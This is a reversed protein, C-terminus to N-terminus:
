DIQIEELANTTIGYQKFESIMSKIESIIGLSKNIRIVKLHDAVKAVAKRIILIKGTDDITENLEVCLEEFIRYALRGFTLVDINFVGGNPHMRVIDKQAQLSSQEPVILLYRETPNKVAEEIINKYLNYTKGYGSAGMLLEVKM